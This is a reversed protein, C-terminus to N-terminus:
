VTFLRFDIILLESPKERPHNIPRAERPNMGIVPMTLEQRKGWV